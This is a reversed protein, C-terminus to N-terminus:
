NGIKILYYDLKFDDLTIDLHALGKSAVFLTAENMEKNAMFIDRLYHSSFSIPPMQANTIAEVSISVNTQNTSQSYGVVIRAESGDSIVTFTGVDRLAGAARVFTTMFQQDIKLAIEPQPLNNLKPSPPIVSSDALVYKVKTEGDTIMFAVPDNSGDDSTVVNFTIDDKLVSLLSRLQSTDFIDYRGTPLFTNNTKIFGAMNHDDGAFAIYVGSDTAEWTVKEVRGSINYKNIFSELFKKNM